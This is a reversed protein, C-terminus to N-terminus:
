LWPGLIPLRRGHVAGPSRGQEILNHGTSHHLFIINTFEGQSDSSVSGSALLARGLHALRWLGLGRGRVLLALLIIACGLLAVIVAIGAKSRVFSRIRNMFRMREM